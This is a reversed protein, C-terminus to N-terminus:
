ANDISLPSKQMPNQAAPGAAPKFFRADRLLYSNTENCNEDILKTAKVSGWDTVINEEPLSNLHAKIAKLRGKAAAIQQDSLRGSYKKDLDADTLKTFAAIIRPSALPPLGVCKLQGSVSPSTIPEQITDLDYPFEGFSLDNDIKKLVVRGNQDKSVFYNGQSRDGQGDLADSFQMLFSQERLAPDDIAIDHPELNVKSAELQGKANLRVTNGQRELTNKLREFGANNVQQRYEPAPKWNNGGPLDAIEIDSSQPNRRLVLNKAALGPNMAETGYDTLSDHATNSAMSWNGDSKYVVDQAAKGPAEAMATGVVVKGDPLQLSAFGTEPVLNFGLMQDTEYTAVSQESFQIQNNGDRRLRPFLGKIVGEANPSVATVAKTFYMTEPQNGRKVEVKFVDNVNGGKQAARNVVATHRFANLDVKSSKWGMSRFSLIEARSLGKAELTKKDGSTVGNTAFELVEEPKLGEAALKDVEDANCGRELATLAQEHSMGIAHKMLASYDKPLMGGQHIQKCEDPKLGSKLFVDLQPLGIRTKAWPGADKKTLGSDFLHLVEATGVSWLNATHKAYECEIDRGLQELLDSAEQLKGQTNGTLDVQQKRIANRLTEVDSPRLKDLHSRLHATVSAKSDFGQIKSDMKEQLRNLKALDSVLSDISAKKGDTSVKGLLNALERSFEKQARNYSRVKGNNGPLIDAMRSALSKLPHQRAASRCSFVKDKIFVKREGFKGLPPFNYDQNAQHLGPTNAAIKAMAEEVSKSTYFWNSRLPARM